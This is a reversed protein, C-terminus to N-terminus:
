EVLYFIGALIMTTIAFALFAKAISTYFPSSGKMLDPWGRVTRTVIDDDPSRHRITVSDAMISRMGMAAAGFLFFAGLIMLYFALHHHVVHM